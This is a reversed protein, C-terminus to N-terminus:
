FFFCCRPWTGRAFMVSDCMATQTSKGPALLFLYGMKCILVNLHWLHISAKLLNLQEQLRHMMGRPQLLPENWHLKWLFCTSKWPVMFPFCLTESFTGMEPRRHWSREQLVCAATFSTCFWSWAASVHPQCSWSAPLPRCAPELREQRQGTHSLRTM